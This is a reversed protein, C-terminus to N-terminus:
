RPATAPRHQHDVCALEMIGQCYDVTTTGPAPPEYAAPIPAAPPARHQHDVCALEMVGQCYDIPGAPQQQQVSATMPPGGVLTVMVNQPYVYAGGSRQDLNIGTAGGAVLNVNTNPSTSAALTRGGTGGDPHTCTIALAGKTKIVTASGPTAAITWSGKRNQLVCTAGSEPVTTVRVSQTTACAAAGLPCLIAALRLLRTL